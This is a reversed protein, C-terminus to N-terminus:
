EHRYGRSVYLMLEEINPEATQEVGDLPLNTRPVLAHFGLSTEKYGVAARRVPETLTGGSVLALSAVIEDKVGSYFVKGGEILTLYDACKDLDSTIHTSFLVSKDGDAVLERFLDLMEDRAVPDLGSTPEDFIFLSAKHSLALIVSFKVRMGASMEGLRKTSDLELRRKLEGYRDFDFSDYFRAYEKALNEARVRKFSECTGDSFAISQRLKLMNTAMDEGLATVRGDDPREIGLLCRLTTSKGAGNRGVFGMIYGMPLKFSVSDLKFTGYDRTLGEVELAYEEGSM